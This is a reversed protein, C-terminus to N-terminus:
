RRGRQHEFVTVNGDLVQEAFDPATMFDGEVHQVDAPQFQPRPTDASDLERKLLRNLVSLLAMLEALGDRVEAQDFVLERLHRNSRVDALRNEIAREPHDVPSELLHVFVIRSLHKPHQLLKGDLARDDLHPLAFRQSIDDIFLDLYKTTVTVRFIIRSL